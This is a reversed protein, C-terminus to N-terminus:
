KKTRLEYLIQELRGIILAYAIVGNDRGRLQMEDTLISRLLEAESIDLERHALKDLLLDKEIHTPSKLMQGVNTEVAKWFLDVKTEIRTLRNEQAVVRETQKQIFGFYVIVLGLISVVISVIPLYQV